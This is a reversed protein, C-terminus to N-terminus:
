AQGFTEPVDTTVGIETWGSADGTSADPDRPPYFVTFREGDRVVFSGDPRPGPEPLSVEFDPM